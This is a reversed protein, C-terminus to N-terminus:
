DASFVALADRGAHIVGLVRIEEPKVSYLILHNGVSFTYVHSRKISALSKGIYHFRAFLSFKDAISAITRTAAAEGHGERAIYLWIADLDARAQPAVRIRM